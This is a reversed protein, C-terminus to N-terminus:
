GMTRRLTGRGKKSSQRVLNVSRRKIVRDVSDRTINLLRAISRVSRKDNFRLALIEAQQEPTLM